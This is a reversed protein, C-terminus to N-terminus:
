LKHYTVRRIEKGVKLRNNPLISTNWFSQTYIEKEHRVTKLRFNSQSLPEHTSHSCTLALLSLTKIHKINDQNRENPALASLGKM